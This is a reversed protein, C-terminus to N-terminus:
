ARSRHNHNKASAPFIRPQATLWKPCYHFAVASIRPVHRASFLSNPLPKPIWFSYNDTDDYENIVMCTYIHNYIYM